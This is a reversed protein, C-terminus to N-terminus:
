PTTPDKAKSVDTSESASLRPMTISSKRRLSRVYEPGFRGTLEEPLENQAVNEDSILALIEDENMQMSESEEWSHFADEDIDIEFDDLEPELQIIEQIAEPAPRQIITAEAEDDWDIPNEFQETLEAEPRAVGHISSHPRSPSAPAYHNSSSDTFYNGDDYSLEAEPIPFHHDQVREAELADCLEDVSAEGAMAQRLVFAKQVIQDGYINAMEQAIEKTTVNLNVSKLLQRIAAAMEAASQYRMTPARKLARLTIEDVLPSLGPTIRSPPLIPAERIADFIQIPSAGTFLERGTLAEWLIIGLSFIDSRADIKRGLAQEPSMYCFKGKVIGATTEWGRNVAKAIGFDALKAVGNYGVLINHPTVDRHVIRMPTGDDGALNHAYDLADCTAAIISLLCGVTVPKSAQSGDRLLDALNVGFVYEMTLCHIEDVEGFGGISVINQHRLNSAIKAESIFMKLVDEDTMMNPHLVKLALLKGEDRVLFVHAVGGSAIKCLLKYRGLRERM